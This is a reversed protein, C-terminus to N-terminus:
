SGRRLYRLTLDALLSGRWNGAFRLSPIIMWSVLQLRWALIGMLRRLTVQRQRENKQGSPFHHDVERKSEQVCSLFVPCIRQVPFSGVGGIRPSTVLAIRDIVILVAMPRQCTSFWWVRTIAM